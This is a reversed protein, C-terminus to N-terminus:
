RKRRPIFDSQMDNIMKKIKLPQSVKRYRIQYEDTGVTHIKLTGTNMIKDWFSQEFEIDSVYKYQASKFVESFIGRSYMLRESTLAYKRSLIRYEIRAVMIIVIAIVLMSAYNVFRWFIFLPSGNPGYDVFYLAALLLIICFLYQLLYSKRSPRFFMKVHEDSDLHNNLNFINFMM